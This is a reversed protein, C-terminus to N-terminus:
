SFYDWAPKKPHMFVRIDTGAFLKALVSAFFVRIGPHRLLRRLRAFDKLSRLATERNIGFGYLARDMATYWDGVAGPLAERYLDRSIDCDAASLDWEDRAYLADLTFELRNHPEFGDARAFVFPHLKKDVCYHVIYGKFYGALRDKDEGAYDAIYRMSRKFFELTHCRHLLGGFKAVKKRQFPQAYKYMFFLDGGQLGAIFSNREASPIDLGKLV